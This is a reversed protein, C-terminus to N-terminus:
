VSDADKIEGVDLRAGCAGLQQGPEAGVDDLHLAGAFAVRSTPLQAVDGAHVAQIEGHQIVVLARDRQVGLRQFAFLDQVPEDLLAVHQNLVKSRTGQIAHADGPFM